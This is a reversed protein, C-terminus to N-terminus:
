RDKRKIYDSIIKTCLNSISRQEAKALSNLKEKLEKNITIIMRTNDKSVSM